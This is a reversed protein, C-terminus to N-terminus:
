RLFYTSELHHNIRWQLYYRHIHCLESGRSDVTKEGVVEYYIVRHIGADWSYKRQLERYRIAGAPVPLQWRDSRAGSAPLIELPQLSSMHNRGLGYTERYKSMDMDAMLIKQNEEVQRCAKSGIRLSGVYFGNGVAGHLDSPFINYGRSDGLCMLSIKRPVSYAIRVQNYLKAPLSINGPKQERLLEYLWNTWRHWPGFFDHHGELGEYIVFTTEGMRWSGAKELELWAVEHNGPPPARFSIKIGTTMAAWLVWERDQFPLGIMLPKYGVLVHSETVNVEGRECELILQLSRPLDGPVCIYENSLSSGLLLRRLYNKLNMIMTGAGERLTDTGPM